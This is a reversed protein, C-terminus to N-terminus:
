RTATVQGRVEGGPHLDTGYTYYVNGKLLESAQESTLTIKGNTTGIVGSGVTWKTGVATGSARESGVYFATTTHPGSFGLRNSTYQLENNAPNFTGTLTAHATDSVAPVVHSGDANGSLTYPLNEAANSSSKHCSIM